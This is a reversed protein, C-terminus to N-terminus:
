IRRPILFETWLFDTRHLVIFGIYGLFKLFIGRFLLQPEIGQLEVNVIRSVRVLKHPNIAKLIFSVLKMNQKSEKNSKLSKVYCRKPM